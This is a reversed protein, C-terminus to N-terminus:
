CPTSAAAPRARVGGPVGEPREASARRRGHRDRGAARGRACSSARGGPRRRGPGAGGGRGDHEGGLGSRSPALRRRRGPGRPAARRGRRRGRRRGAAADLDAGQRRARERVRDPDLDRGTSCTPSCSGAWGSRPRRAPAARVAAGARHRAGRARPHAARRLDLPQARDHLVLTGVHEDGALPSPSRPGPPDRGCRGVGRPEAVGRRSSGPTAPRRGAARREDYVRSGAASCRRSCRRRGRRRRRRAAAPRHAPRARAAAARDATRARARDHTATPRTSSADFLRANELAVAAHAAFSTLLGGGGAPVAAGHPAGGAARRDGRGDVVLPVGLIARIQEGDVATTSTSATCSGSTPRTTRPSTRRGPRRSWASCGPASRCGCRRPVGATLAGDTVKM